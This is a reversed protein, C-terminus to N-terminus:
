LLHPHNIVKEWLDHLVVGHEQYRLGGPGGQCTPPSMSLGQRVQSSGTRSTIPPQYGEKQDHLVVGHGQDQRRGPGGQHTPPTM